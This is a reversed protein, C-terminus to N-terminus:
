AKFECSFLAGNFLNAKHPKGGLSQLGSVRTFGSLHYCARKQADFLGWVMFGRARLAVAGPDVGPRGLVLRPVFLIPAQIIKPNRIM